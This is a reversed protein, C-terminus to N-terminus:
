GCRCGNGGGLFIFCCCFVCRHEGLGANQIDMVKKGIERLIQQRWKDAENLDHCETALYPRKQKEGRAEAQKGALFRCATRPPPPATSISAARQGVIGLLSPTRSLLRHPFAPADVGSHTAAARALAVSGSRVPQCLRCGGGAGTSCLSHRCLPSLRRCAASLWSAGPMSLATHAAAFAQLSVDATAHLGWRKKMARWPQQLPSPDPAILPHQQDPPPPASPTESRYVLQGRRPYWRPPACVKGLM